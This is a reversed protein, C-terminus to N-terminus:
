LLEIKPEYAAIVDIVVDTALFSFHTLPETDVINFSQTSLWQLYGSNVVKFFTWESYFPTGYVKNIDYLTSQRFSEDTCRYAHVSEEFIVKVKKEAANAASAASMTIILGNCIGSSLSEIYYKPSLGEVPMWKVWKELMM